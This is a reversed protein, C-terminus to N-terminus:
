MADIQWQGKENTTLGILFIRYTGNITRNVGYEAMSPSLYSRQPTSYSSIIDAMRPMLADFVAGYKEQAGASLFRMAAEKDGATLATNMGDWVARIVSDIQGPDQLVVSAAQTRVAGRADVVSVLITRLGVGTLTTSVPEFADTTIHDATGNADFDYRVEQIGAGLQDSIEFNVAQPGIGVEPQATVRYAAPGTSGVNITKTVQRGDQTTAVVAVSNTGVLLPVTAYFRLGTGHPVGAAPLGNVTVGTNLPARLDIMVLVGDGSITAGNAPSVVTLDIPGSFPGGSVVLTSVSGVNGARDTAYIQLEDGNEGAISASFSGDPNAITTVREGTRSNVVTITAGGEVSGAAGTVRITGDNQQRAQIHGTDPPPPPISDRTVHLIREGANGAADSARLRFANDGESLEFPGHSFAGDPQVSKPVNNITLSAPESIRGAIYVSAQNTLQGDEPRTIEIEPAATDITFRLEAPLSRNGGGDAVTATLLYLGDHVDQAPTCRYAQDVPSCHFQRIGGNLRFEISDLDPESGEISLRIEPRATALISGDAPSIIHIRPALSPTELALQRLLRAGGRDAQPAFENIPAGERAYHALRRQSAVWASGDAPDSILDMIATPQQGAFPELVFEIQGSQEIHVLRRTDAVWIGGHHDAAIAITGDLWPNKREFLLDGDPSYRRLGDDAVVWIQNLTQDYDLARLKKAGLTDVDFAKGGGAVHVEIGSQYAIWLRANTRDLTIGSVPQPLRWEGLVTGSADFRYLQAQVALWASGDRADLTLFEPQGNPPNIKTNFKPVGASDFGLVAKDSFVWLTDRQADVACARAEHPLRIESATRGDAQRAALVGRAHAIWIRPEESQSSVASLASVCLLLLVFSFGAWRVSAQLKSDKGAGEM